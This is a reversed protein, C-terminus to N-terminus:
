EPTVLDRDCHRCVTAERRILEACYPCKKLEHAASRRSRLVAVVVIAVAVVIAIIPALVCSVMTLLEYGGLEGVM